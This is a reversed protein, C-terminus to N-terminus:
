RKRPVMTANGDGDATVDFGAAIFMPTNNIYAQYARILDSGPALSFVSCIPLPDLAKGNITYAVFGEAICTNEDVSHVSSVTHRVGTAVAYIRAAGDAIQAHGTSVPSNGIVFTADPTFFLKVWESPNKIESVYHTYKDVLARHRAANDAVFEM